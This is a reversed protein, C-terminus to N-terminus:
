SHTLLVYSLVYVDDPKALFHSSRARRQVRRIERALPTCQDLGFIDDDCEEFEM